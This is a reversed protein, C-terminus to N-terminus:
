CDSISLNHLPIFRFEESEVQLNHFEWFLDDSGNIKFSFNVSVELFEKLTLRGQIKKLVM